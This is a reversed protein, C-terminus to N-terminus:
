KGGPGGMPPQQGQGGMPGRQQMGGGERMARRPPRCKVLEEDNTAADVCTKEQELRAKGEELLKQSRAKRESFTEPNADKGQGGQMAPGPGSAAGQQALVVQAGAALFSVVM